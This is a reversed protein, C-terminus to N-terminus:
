KRRFGGQPNAGVFIADDIKNALSFLVARTNIQVPSYLFLKAKNESNM